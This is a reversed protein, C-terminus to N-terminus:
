VKVKTYTITIYFTAGNYATSNTTIGLDTPTVLMGINEAPVFANVYPMTIFNGGVSKAMGTVSIVQDLGIIGHPYLVFSPAGTGTITGTLTKTYVQKNNIWAFSTARERMFYSEDDITGNVSNAVQIHQQQLQYQFQERQDEAEGEYKQWSFNPQLKGM